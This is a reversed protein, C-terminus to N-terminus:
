SILTDLYTGPLHTNTETISVAAGGDVSSPSM